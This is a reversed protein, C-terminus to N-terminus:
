IDGRLDLSMFHEDNRFTHKVKEVLMYQQISIDGIDRMLVMVSTGARVRIDGLCDKLQLTRGKRNKMKLLIEAKVKPNVNEDIKDLYQLVGWNDINNDDKDVCPEEKGVNEGSRYLKVVNYTDTDIDTKYSFNQSNYEGIVLDPIKMTEIDKLMLNGYDDYLVYMKGKNRLTLELADYIIDLLTVNEKVRHPIVYGTDEITGISLDYIQAIEKLVESAKKETYQYIDKNKLYRLKDYATVSIIQNKDRDKSFIFGCFLNKGDVKFTVSNGEQFDITDDKLINFTLKGPQGIRVTEWTIDGEVLPMYQKGKNRIVLEYAM